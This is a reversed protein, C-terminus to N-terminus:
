CIRNSPIPLYERHSKRNAVSNTSNSKTQKGYAFVIMWYLKQLFFLLRRRKQEKSFLWDLSYRQFSVTFSFMYMGIQQIAVWYVQNSLSDCFNVKALSFKSPSFRSLHRANPVNWENHLCWHQMILCYLRTEFYFSIFQFYFSQANAHTIAVISQMYTETKLKIWVIQITKTNTQM